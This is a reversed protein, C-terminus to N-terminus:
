KASSPIWPFPWRINRSIFLKTIMSNKSCHIAPIECASYFLLLELTVLGYRDAFPKTGFLRALVAARVEPKVSPATVEKSLPSNWDPAIFPLELDWLIVFEKLGDALDCSGVARLM